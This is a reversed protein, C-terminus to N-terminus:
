LEVLESQEVLDYLRKHNEVLQTFYWEYGQFANAILEKCELWDHYPIIFRTVGVDRGDYFVIDDLHFRVIYINQMCKYVIDYEGNRFQYFMPSLHMGATVVTEFTTHHYYMGSYVTPIEFIVTQLSMPAEIHIEGEVLHYSYEFNLYSSTIIPKKRKRPNPEVNLAKFAYLGQDLADYLFCYTEQRSRIVHMGTGGNNHENYCM